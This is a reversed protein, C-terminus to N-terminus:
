SQPQIIRGDWMTLFSIKTRLVCSSNALNGSNMQRLLCTLYLTNAPNLGAATSWVPDKIYESYPVMLEKAIDVTGSITIAKYNVSSKSKANPREQGISITPPVVNTPDVYVCLDTGIAVLDTNMVTFSYRVKTVRYTSYLTALQDRLYAQHGALTFDPDFM